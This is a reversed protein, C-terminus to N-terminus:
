REVLSDLFFDVCDYDLIQLNAELRRYLPMRITWPRTFM